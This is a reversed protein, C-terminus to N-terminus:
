RVENALLKEAIAGGLIPGEKILDERARGVEAQIQDRYKDLAERAKQKAENLIREQELNAELRAKDFIAKVDANLSRAKRQYLSELERTQSFIKEASQSNGETASHRGEFAAFFPKFIVTKIILFSFIFIGMQIWLTDNVGLAKIINVVADM